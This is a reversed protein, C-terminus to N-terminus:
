CAHTHTYMVLLSKNCTSITEWLASHQSEPEDSKNSSRKARWAAETKENGTREESGMGDSLVFLPSSLTNNQCSLMLYPSSVSRSRLPASM